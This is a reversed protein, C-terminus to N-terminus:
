IITNCKYYNCIIDRISTFDIGVLLLKIKDIYVNVYVFSVLYTKDILMKIGHM